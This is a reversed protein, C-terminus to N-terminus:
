IRAREGTDEHAETAVFYESTMFTRIRWIDLFGSVARGIASM